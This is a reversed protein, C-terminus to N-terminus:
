NLKLLSFNSETNETNISDSHIIAFKIPFFCSCLEGLCACPIITPRFKFQMTKDPTETVYSSARLSHFCTAKIYSVKQQQEKQITNRGPLKLIVIHRDFICSFHFDLPVFYHCFINLVQTALSRGKKSYSKTVSTPRSFDSLGLIM